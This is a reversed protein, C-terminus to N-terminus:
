MRAMLAAQAASMGLVPALVHAEGAGREGGARGAASDAWRPPRSAPPPGPGPDPPARAPRRANGRAPGVLHFLAVGRQALHGPAPRRSAGPRAGRFMSSRVSRGLAGAPGCELARHGLHGGVDPPLRAPHPTSSRRDAEGRGRSPGRSPAGRPSTLGAAAHGRGRRAARVIRARDQRHREGRVLLVGGDSGGGARAIYRCFM